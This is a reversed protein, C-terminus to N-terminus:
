GRVTTTSLAQLAAEELLEAPIEPSALINAAKSIAERRALGAEMLVRTLQCTLCYREIERVVRDLNPFNLRGRALQVGLPAKVHIGDAYVRLEGEGEWPEWAPAQGTEWRLEAKLSWDALELELDASIGAEQLAKELTDYAADVVAEEVEEDYSM